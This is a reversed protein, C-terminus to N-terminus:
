IFLVNTSVNVCVIAKVIQGWCATLTYHYLTPKPRHDNIKQSNLVHNQTNVMIYRRSACPFTLGMGMHMEWAIHGRGWWWQKTKPHRYYKCHRDLEWSFLCEPSDKQIVLRNLHLVAPIHSSISARTLCITCRHNWSPGLQEYCIINLPTQRWKCSDSLLRLSKWQQQWSTSHLNSIISMTKIVTIKLPTHKKIINTASMHIVNVLRWLCGVHFEM